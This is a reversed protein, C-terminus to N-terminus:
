TRARQVPAASGRLSRGAKGRVVVRGLLVGRGCTFVHVGPALMPLEVTVDEFAPLMVSVALGPFVVLESCPATEERRFVLNVPDGARVAVSRPRFSGKVLVRTEHPAEVSPFGDTRESM